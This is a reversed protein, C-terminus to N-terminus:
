TEITHFRVSQSCLSPTSPVQLFFFLHWVSTFIQTALVLLKWKSQSMGIVAVLKQQRNHGEIGLWGWENIVWCLDHDLFNTQMIRVLDTARHMIRVALERLNGTSLRHSETQSQFALNHRRYDWGDDWTGLRSSLRGTPVSACSQSNPLSRLQPWKTDVQVFVACSQSNPLSRLQQWM